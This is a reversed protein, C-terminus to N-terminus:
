QGITLGGLQSLGAVGSGLTGAAFGYSGAQVPFTAIWVAKGGLTAPQVDAPQVAGSGSTSWFDLSSASGSASFIVQVQGPEPISAFLLQVPPPPTPFPGPHLGGPYTAPLGTPCGTPVPIALCVGFNPVVSSGGSTAVLHLLNAIDAPVLPSISGVHKGGGGGSGTSPTPLPPPTPAGSPPASPSASSGASPSAGASPSPLVPVSPSPGPSSTPFAEPPLTRYHAPPTLGGPFAWATVMLGSGFDTAFSEIADAPLWDGKYGAWPRGIPDIVYYAAPRGGQPPRFGDIYIAHAAVFDPQLRLPVPLEGYIGILVAGAGAYILARFQLPTLSNEAFHVGWGNGVAQNLDDLTTGQPGIDAQLARLQSGSTVIGYALRALMAGSAMVCNYGQLPGGDFQSIPPVRPFGSPSTWAPRYDSGANPPVPNSTFSTLQIGQNAPPAQLPVLSGGGAGGSVAKFAVPVNGAPTQYLTTPGAVATSTPGSQTLSAVGLTGGMGVAAALIFKLITTPAPISM